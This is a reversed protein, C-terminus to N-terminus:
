DSVSIFFSLIPLLFSFAKCGSGRQDIRKARQNAYESYYDRDAQQPTRYKNHVRPRDANYFDM